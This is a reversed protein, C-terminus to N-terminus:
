RDVDSMVFDISGLYVILDSM